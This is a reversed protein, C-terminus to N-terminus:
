VRRLESLDDVSTMLSSMKSRQIIIERAPHCELASSELSTKTKVSDARCKFCRVVGPVASEWTMLHFMRRSSPALLASSVLGFMSGFM